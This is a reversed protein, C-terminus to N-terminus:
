TNSNKFIYIIFIGSIAKTTTAAKRAKKDSARHQKPTPVKHISAAFKSETKKKAVCKGGVVQAVIYFDIKFQYSSASCALFRQKKKTLSPGSEFTQSAPHKLDKKLTSGKPATGLWVSSVIVTCM